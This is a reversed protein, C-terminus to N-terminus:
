IRPPLIHATIGSGFILLNLEKPPCVLPSSICHLSRFRSEPRPDDAMAAGPRKYTCLNWPPGGKTASGNDIVTTVLATQGDLFLREQGEQKGGTTLRNDPSVVPPQLTLL